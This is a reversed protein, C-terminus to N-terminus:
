YKAAHHVGILPHTETPRDIEHGPVEWEGFTVRDDDESSEVSLPMLRQEDRRYAREALCDEVLTRQSM